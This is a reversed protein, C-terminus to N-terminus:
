SILNQGDQTGPFPRRRPSCKQGVKSCGARLTQSKADRQARKEGTEKERVKETTLFVSTAWGFKKFYQWM